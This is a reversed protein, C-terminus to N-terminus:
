PKGIIIFPAWYRPHAFPIPDYDALAPLMARTGEDFMRQILAEVEDRHQTRLLLQAQHLAMAPAQGHALNEHFYVMLTYAAVDDVEHLACVITSAGAYLFARPLGLLEDGSAVHSLGSTCANLTVLAANLNLSHMMTRADLRDDAGLLLYSGLPDHQLFVAHGAIHLRRVRAARESLHQRKGAPGIIAQSNTLRAIQQAEHEAFRLTAPGAGNYGLALDITNDDAQRELCARLVTASPAYTVSPGGPTLVHSGGPQQLAAFPVFHLPGHPIIHLTHMGALLHEIPALLQTYLWSLKRGTLLQRGPTPDSPLPQLLNPDFAIRHVEIQGSTVAFLIIEPPSLLLERLRQNEPPIHELFHAGRPMVGVTYYELLLAGPALMNQADALTVPNLAQGAALAPDRRALLDLLARARAREVYGFASTPDDDHLCALVMSEYLQQITGLLGIKIAEGETAARIQEISDIATRLTALALDHQGQQLLLAGLRHRAQARQHEDRVHDGISIARTYAAAAEDLRGQAHFLLGLMELTDRATFPNAYEPSEAARLANLYAAESRADDGLIQFLLGHAWDVMASRADMGAATYIAAAQDLHEHAIAWRGLYLANNGITYLAYAEGYLDNATRFHEISRRGLDLATDFQNLQHYAWSLSVLAGGHQAPSVTGIIQLVTEFCNIARELHGQVMALTGLTNWAGARLDAALDGRALLSQLLAESREYHQARMANAAVYIALEDAHEPQLPGNAHLAEILADIEAWRMYDRNLERLARLHHLAAAEDLPDPQPARASLRQVYYDFAQRHLAREDRPREHRLRALLAAQCPPTLQYRETHSALPVVDANALAFQAAPTDLGVIAQLAAQDFSHLVACATPLDHAPMTESDTM